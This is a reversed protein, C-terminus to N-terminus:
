DNSHEAEYMCDDVARLLCRRRYEMIPYVIVMVVVMFIFAAYTDWSTLIDWLSEM